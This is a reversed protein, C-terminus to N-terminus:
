RRPNAIPCNPDAFPTVLPDDCGTSTYQAREVNTLIRLLERRSEPPDCLDANVSLIIDLAEDHDVQDWNTLCKALMFFVANRHGETLPGAEGSIIREACSHLNKQAGFTASTKRESPPTIQMLAARREWDVPDNKGAEASASSSRWRSRRHPCAGGSSSTVATATTPCTSTTAWSSAAFDHNKPFVEVGKKGAALTAEKCCAWPWGRRAYATEFFVWVHANGSRSREMFSTGPIYQQMERAADFDPEDLDIAAFAVTNDERLPAVGIGPRRGAPAQDLGRSALPRKIWQGRGTGHAIKLGDFLAAFRPQLEYVNGV